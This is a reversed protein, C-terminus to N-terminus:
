CHVASHLHSHAILHIDGGLSQLRWHKRTARRSGCHHSQDAIRRLGGSLPFVLNMIAAVGVAVTGVLRPGWIDALRSALFAMPISLWALITTVTGVQVATLRGDSILGPTIIGLTTATINSFLAFFFVLATARWVTHAPVFSQSQPESSALPEISEM